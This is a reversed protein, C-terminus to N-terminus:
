GSGPRDDGASGDAIYRTAAIAALQSAGTAGGDACALQRGPSDSEQLPLTLSLGYSYEPFAGDIMQTLSGNIGSILASSNNCISSTTPLEKVCNGLLGAAAYQSFINLTPLLNNATYGTSINENQLNTQAIRLDSRNNYAEPLRLRCTRIDADRPEPLHDTTVIEAADLEADIQKALINKLQTRYQVRLNTRALVVQNEASAVKRKPPFWM